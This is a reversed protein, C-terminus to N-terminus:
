NIDGQPLIVFCNSPQVARHIIVGSCNVRDTELAAKTGKMGVWPESINQSADAEVWGFSQM